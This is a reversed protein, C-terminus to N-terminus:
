KEEAPKQYKEHKALASGFHMCALHLARLALTKEACNPAADNMITAVQKVADYATQHLCKDVDDFWVRNFIENVLSM